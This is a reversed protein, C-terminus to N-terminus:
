RDAEVGRGTARRPARAIEAGSVGRGEDGSSVRILQTMAYSARVHEGGSAPRKIATVTVRTLGAFASPETVVDIEWRGGSGAQLVGGDSTDDWPPVPGDLTEATDIGAEMRALASSALDCAQRLDRARIMAETSQELVTVFALGAGVFVALAVLAELLLAGRGLRSRDATARVRAKNM